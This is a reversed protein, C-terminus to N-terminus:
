GIFRRQPVLRPKKPYYNIERKMRLIGTNVYSMLTRLLSQRGEERSIAMASAYMSIIHHFKEPIVPVDHDFYLPSPDSIYVIHVDVDNLAPPFIGFELLHRELYFTDGATQNLIGGDIELVDDKYSLVRASSHRTINLFLWGDFYGDPYSLDVKVRADTTGSLCSFSGLRTLNVGGITYYLPEDCPVLSFKHEAILDKPSYPSLTVSTGPIYAELIIRLNYPLWMNYPTVIAEQSYSGELSPSISVEQGNIGEVEVVESELGESVIIRQGSYFGDTSEVKILNSQLVELLRTPRFRITYEKKLFGWNKLSAIERYAKNVFSKMDDLSFHSNDRVEDIYSYADTVLEYFTAMKRHLPFSKQFFAEEGGCRGEEFFKGKQRPSGRKFFLTGGELFSEPSGKTFIGQM